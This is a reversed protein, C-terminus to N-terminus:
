IYIYIYIDTSDLAATYSAAIARASIGSTFIMNPDIRFNNDTAADQRIHRIVGKMDSASKIIVEQMQIASPPPFLPVDFLRYDISVAM